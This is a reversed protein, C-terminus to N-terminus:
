AKPWGNKRIRRGVKRLTAEDQPDISGDSRPATNLLLNAHYKAAYKLNEMVSDAGRHKGDRNKHYGWGAIHHCLEIPKGSEEAAKIEETFRKPWDDEPAYFDEVGNYGLKASILTQGQLRRILAYTEPIRFKEIQGSSTTSWGDLWIAAIPGYQTLLETLQAHMFDVYKNLDHQPVSGV